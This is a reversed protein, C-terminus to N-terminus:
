DSWTRSTREAIRYEVIRHNNTDSLLLRDPGDPQIGAPEGLPLCLSDACTFPRDELDSLTRRELDLVRVAGNYSDAVLLRRDDWLAVGLPHQLRALDLPGNVHGFEFLGGGVLTRVAGTAADVARIASSEPDAVFLTRGDRSLALGSPQAFAAEKPGADHLGEAGSGALPRVTGDELELVGIQHTGANAFFLRNGSLELDWPSALANERGQGTGRLVRGRAGTGALTTVTGTARDIRRIAHNGTDAVYIAQADAILGQPAAFRADAPLGDAFGPAGSGYRARERGDDDLLVIQHHGSDALLWRKGPGPLPKLKGPFRLTGRTAAPEPLGLSGPLIKGERRYRDLAAAVGDRLRDPDPEGSGQDVVYGDPSVLTLTPWARIGYQNWLALGPDHAVPHRIGLRAIAAAVSALDREAAFKPSHVGVVVVEEPFAEEVRRLAPLAHLCNVCGLTWFDLLVLKGALAGRLSLPGPANLWVIGPRDLDPARVIGRRGGGAGATEMM